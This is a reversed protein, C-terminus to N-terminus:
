DDGDGDYYWSMVADQYQRFFTEVTQRDEGAVKHVYYTQYLSIYYDDKICYLDMAYSDDMVIMQEDCRSLTLNQLEGHPFDSHMVIDKNKLTKEFVEQYRDEVLIFHYYDYYSDYIEPQYDNQELAKEFAEDDYYSFYLHDLGNDNDLVDKVYDVMDARCYRLTDTSIVSDYVHHRTTVNLIVPPDSQDKVFTYWGHDGFLNSLLVPVDPETIWVSMRNGHDIVSEGNYFDDAIDLRQYSTDRFTITEKTDDDFVGTNHRLEDLATCSCLSISLM